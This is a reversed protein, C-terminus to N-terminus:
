CSRRPRREKEARDAAHVSASKPVSCPGCSMFFMSPRLCSLLELEGLLGGMVAEGEWDEEGLSEEFLLSEAAGVELAEPERAEPLAPELVADPEPEPVCLEDEPGLVVSYSGRSGGPPMLM